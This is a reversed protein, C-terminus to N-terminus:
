GIEAHTGRTLTATKSRKDRARRKLSGPDLQAIPKVRPPFGRRQRRRCSDKRKKSLVWRQSGYLLCRHFWRDVSLTVTRAGRAPLLTNSPNTGARKRRKLLTQVFPLISQM